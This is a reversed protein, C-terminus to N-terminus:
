NLPVLEKAWEYLAKMSDVIEQILDYTDSESAYEKEICKNDKDYTFGEPLMSFSYDEAFMIYCYKANDKDFAKFRGNEYRIDQLDFFIICDFDEKNDARFENINAFAHGSCCFTTRYGKKNLLSIILAINEDVEFYDGEKGEECNNLIDFSEKHILSMVIGGM